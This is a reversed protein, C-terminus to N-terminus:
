LTQYAFLIIDEGKMIGKAWIPDLDATPRAAVVESLSKGQRKLEQVRGAVTRLMEAYPRLEALTGLEGHGPVIKTKSDALAICRDVGHIMGRITGGTGVDILPYYGNFWLDGTHSVNHDRFHVFLDTDTHARPTHQLSHAEGNFSVTKATAFTDAPLGDPPLPAVNLDYFDIRQPTAFRKHSNIHAIIHAVAKHMRPNANTHDLHWHTNILLRMPQSDIAHLAAMLHPAGASFQCDILMKGDKGTHCVVNGGVGQLLYIGDRLRTTRIKEKAAATAFEQLTLHPGHITEAWARVTPLMLSAGAAM